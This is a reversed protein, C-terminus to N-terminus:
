SRALLYGSVYSTGQLREAKDGYLFEASPDREWFGIDNRPKGGNETPHGDFDRDHRGGTLLMLGSTM